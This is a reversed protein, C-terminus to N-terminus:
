AFDAPRYIYDNLEDALQAMILGGVGLRKYITLLLSAVLGSDLTVNRDFIAVHGSCDVRSFLVGHFLSIDFTDNIARTCIEPNVFTLVTSYDYLYTNNTIPISTVVSTDKNTHPVSSIGQTTLVVSVSTISKSTKNTKASPSHQSYDLTTTDDAISSSTTYTKTISVAPTTSIIDSASSETVHETTTTTPTIRTSPATPTDTVPVTSSLKVIQKVITTAASSPKTSMIPVSGPSTYFTDGRTDKRRVIHSPNPEIDELPLDDYDTTQEMEPDSTLNATTKMMTLGTEPQETPSRDSTIPSNTLDIALLSRKRFMRNTDIVQKTTKSVGESPLTPPPNVNPRTTRDEPADKLPDSDVPSSGEEVQIERAVRIHDNHYYTNEPNDLSSEAFGSARNDFTDMSGTTGDVGIFDENEYESVDQPVYSSTAVGVVLVVLISLHM